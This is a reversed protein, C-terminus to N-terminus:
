AGRPVSSVFSSTVSSVVSSVLFSLVCTHDCSAVVRRATRRVSAESVFSLLSSHTSWDVGAGGFPCNLSGLWIKDGWMSCRFWSVQVLERADIGMIVAGRVNLRAALASQRHHALFSQGTRPGRVFVRKM